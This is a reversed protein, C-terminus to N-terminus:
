RLPTDRDSVLGASGPRLHVIDAGTPQFSDPDAAFAAEFARQYAQRRRRRTRLLTIREWNWLNQRAQKGLIEDVFFEETGLVQPVQRSPAAALVERFPTPCWNGAGPHLVWGYVLDCTYRTAGATVTVDGISQPKWGNTGLMKQDQRM